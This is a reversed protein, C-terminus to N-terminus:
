LSYRNHCGYLCLSVICLAVSPYMGIVQAVYYGLSEMDTVLLIVFDQDIFRFELAM